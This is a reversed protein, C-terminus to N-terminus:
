TATAKKIGLYRTTEDMFVYNPEYGSRKIGVMNEKIRKAPNGVYIGGPMVSLKKTVVAGMGVMACSGVVTFQHLICGLGLNAHQMIHSHGGILVNCSVTVHDELVSDHSLHSGRLMVCCSRMVTTGTTPANITVFERIVNGNGILVRREAEDTFFYQQHEAPSGISCHGEFRNNHGIIVGEYITVYPGIYNGEGMKVNSGIIARPHIDNGPYKLADPTIRRTTQHEDSKPCGIM